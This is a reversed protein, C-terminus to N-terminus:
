GGALGKMWLLPSKEVCGAERAEGGFDVALEEEDGVIGRWWVPWVGDCVGRSFLQMVVDETDALLGLGFGGHDQVFLRVIGSVPLRSRRTVLLLACIQPRKSPDFMHTNRDGIWDYKSHNDLEKNDYLDQQYRPIAGGLM